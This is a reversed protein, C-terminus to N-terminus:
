LGGSHQLYELDSVLEARTFALLPKLSEPYYRSFAELCSFLDEQLFDAERARRAAGGRACSREMQELKAVFCIRPRGGVGRCPLNAHGPCREIARELDGALEPRGILAAGLAGGFIAALRQYRARREQRPPHPNNM